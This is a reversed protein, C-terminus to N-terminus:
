TVSVHPLSAVQRARQGPSGSTEPGASANVSASSVAAAGGRSRASTTVVLSPLTANRTTGGDPDGTSGRPTVANSRDGHDGALPTRKRTGNAAPSTSSVDGVRTPPPAPTSCQDASKRRPPRM